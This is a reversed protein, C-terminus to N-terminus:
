EDGRSQWGLEMERALVSAPSNGVILRWERAGAAEVIADELEAAVLERDVDKPELTTVKIWFEAM